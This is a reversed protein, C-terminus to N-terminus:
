AFIAFLQLIFDIIMAIFNIIMDIISEESNVDEVTVEISDSVTSGDNNTVTVSINATGAVGYTTVVGNKDVTAISADSSTWVVSKYEANSPNIEYTFEATNSDEFDKKVVIEVSDAKVAPKTTPEEPINSTSEEPINTTPEEPVNTTSEEPISITSEEPVGTSPEQSIDTTSEEPIDTTPEEPNLANMLHRLSISVCEDDSCLYLLGQKDWVFLGDKHDVGFLKVDSYESDIFSIIDNTAQTYGIIYTANEEYNWFDYKGTSIDTRVEQIKENSMEKKTVKKTNCDYNFITATDKEPITAISMTPSMNNCVWGLGSDNSDSIINIIEGSTMDIIFCDLYKIILPYEIWGYEENIKGYASSYVLAIDGNTLDTMHYEFTYPADNHINFVSMDLEEYNEFDNTKIFMEIGPTALEANWWYEYGLFLIGKESVNMEFFSYSESFRGGEFTPTSCKKWMKLDSSIYYNCYFLYSYDNADDINEVLTNFACRKEAYLVYVDNYKKIKVNGGNPGEENFKRDFMKFNYFGNQHDFNVIYDYGSYDTKNLLMGTVFLMSDVFQVSADGLLETNDPLFEALKETLNYSGFTEGDSSCNLFCDNNENKTIVAVMEDSSDSSVIEGNKFGFIPNVAVYDSIPKIETEESAFGIVMTLLCVLVSLLISIARRM